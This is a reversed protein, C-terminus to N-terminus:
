ELIVKIITSYMEITIISRKTQNGWHILASSCRCQYRFDKKDPNVKSKCIHNSIVENIKEADGKSNPSALIAHLAESSFASLTDSEIINFFKAFDPIYSMYISELGPILSASQALKAIQSLETGKSSGSIKVSQNVSYFDVCPRLVGEVTVGRFAVGYDTMNGPTGVSFSINGANEDYTAAVIEGTNIHKKLYARGSDGKHSYLGGGTCNLFYGASNYNSTNPKFLSSDVFGIRLSSSPLAVVMVTFYSASERGGAIVSEWGLGEVRTACTYDEDIRVNSTAKTVDWKMPKMKEKTIDKIVDVCKAALANMKLVQAIKFVYMVKSETMEINTGYVFDLVLDFADWTCEPLMNTLDTRSESTEMAMEACLFESFGRRVKFFLTHVTYSRSGVTLKWDSHEGTKWLVETEDIAKGEYEAFLHRFNQYAHSM